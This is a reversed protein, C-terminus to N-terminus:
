RVAHGFRNWRIRNWFPRTPDANWSYLVFMARGLILDEDLFGWGRSDLSIDRNDGMVFLHDPPVTEPGWNDRGSTYGPLVNGDVPRADEPYPVPAGDVYVQKDRIEITQGEVAVVRKVLRTRAEIPSNFVIVDGPRPVRLAPLRVGILPLRSGYVFKNGLVTDGPLVTYEMSSQEVNYAEAISVRIFTTLIIVTLIFKVWERVKERSGPLAPAGAPTKEGGTAANAPDPQKETPRTKSM